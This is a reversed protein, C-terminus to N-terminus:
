PQRGVILKVMRGQESNVQGDAQVGIERFAKQLIAASKPPDNGAVIIVGVPLGTFTAQSVGATSLGAKILASNIQSAFLYAEGDGNLSVLDINAGDFKSLFAVFISEEEPTLNRGAQHTAVQELEKKKPKAYSRLLKNWNWEFRKPRRKLM